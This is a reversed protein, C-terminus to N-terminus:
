LEQGPHLEAMRAALAEFRNAMIEYQVANMLEYVQQMDPQELANLYIQLEDDSFERYTFAAGALASVQLQSRLRPEDELLAARLREEDLEQELIGSRSAAMLFRVRIEQVARVGTDAANVAKNLNQLTEVRPDGSTVMDGVLETGIRQKAEDDEERHSANEAQVLKLGLPSAYFSAAHTLLEDSLAQELIGLAMDHMRQSDFVEDAMLTWSAGFDRADMGLMAPADGAAQGISDLAVDFGTVTLFAELRDRDAAGAVGVSLAITIFTSIMVNQVSVLMDLIMWNRKLSQFFM